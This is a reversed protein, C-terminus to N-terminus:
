AVSQTSARAAVMQVSDRTQELIRTVAYVAEHM